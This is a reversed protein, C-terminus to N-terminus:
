IEYVSDSFEEPQLTAFMETGFIDMFAYDNEWDQRIGVLISQSNFRGDEEITGTKVIISGNLFALIEDPTFPDARRNIIELAFSSFGINVVHRYFPVGGGSGGSYELNTVRGEIDSVQRDNEQVYNNYMFLPVFAGEGKLLQAHREIEATHEEITASHEKIKERAQADKVEYDGLHCFCKTKEAM